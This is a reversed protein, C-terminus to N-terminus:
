SIRSTGAVSPVVVSSDSARGRTVTVEPCQSFACARPDSPDPNLDRSVWTAAPHGGTLGLVEQLNRAARTSNAYGESTPQTPTERAPAPHARLDRLLVDCPSLAGVKNLLTGRARPPPLSAPLRSTSLVGWALTGKQLRM